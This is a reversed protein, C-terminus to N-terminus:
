FALGARQLKRARFYSHRGTGSSAAASGPGAAPAAAAGRGGFNLTHQGPDDADCEFRVVAAHQELLPNCTSWSSWQPSSTHPTHPAPATHPLAALWPNEMADGPGGWRGWLLEEGGM